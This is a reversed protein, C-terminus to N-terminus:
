DSKIIKMEEVVEEDHMWWVGGYEVVSWGEAHTINWM